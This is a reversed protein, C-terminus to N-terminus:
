GGPIPEPHEDKGALNTIKQNPNIDAKIVEGTGVILLFAALTILLLKKKM